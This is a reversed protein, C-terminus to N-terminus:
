MMIDPSFSFHLDSFWVQKFPASLTNAKLRMKGSKGPCNASGKQIVAALRFVYYYM